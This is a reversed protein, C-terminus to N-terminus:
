PAGFFMVSPLDTPMYIYVIIRASNKVLVYSFHQSFVGTTLKIPANQVDLVTCNINVSHLTLKQTNNKDHVCIGTIYQIYTQFAFVTHIM